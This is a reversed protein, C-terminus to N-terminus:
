RSEREHQRRQREADPQREVVDHGAGPGGCGDIRAASGPSAAAAASRCRNLRTESSGPLPLTYKRYGQVAAQSQACRGGDEDEFGKECRHERAGARDAAHEGASAVPAAMPDTTASAMLVQRLMGDADRGNVSKRPPTSAIVWRAGRAANKTQSSADVTTAAPRNQHSARPGRCGHEGLAAGYQPAQGAM